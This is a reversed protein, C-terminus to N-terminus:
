HIIVRLKDLCLRCLFVALNMPTIRFELKHVDERSACCNCQDHEENVKELSIHGWEKRIM